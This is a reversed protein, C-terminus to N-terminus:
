ACLASLVPTLPPLPTPEGTPSDADLMLPLLLPMLGLFAFFMCGLAAKAPHLPPMRIFLGSSTRELL